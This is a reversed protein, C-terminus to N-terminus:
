VQTANEVVNAEYFSRDFIPNEDNVDMVNVTLSQVEAM